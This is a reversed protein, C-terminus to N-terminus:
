KKKRNTKISAMMQNCIFIVFIKKHFNLVIKEPISINTKILVNTKFDNILHFEVKIHETISENKIKELIYLNVYCYEFNDHLTKDINRIKISSITIHIKIKSFKRVIFSKNILSMFTESNMCLDKFNETSTLIIKITAYQYFRFKYEENDQLIKISKIISINKKIFKEFYISSKSKCFTKM